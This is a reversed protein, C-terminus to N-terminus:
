IVVWRSKWFWQTPYRRGGVNNILLAWGLMILSQQLVMPVYYWGMKSVQPITVALLATAGGPPHTVEFLQMVGLALGLSVAAAAWNAGYIDGVQFGPHLDFLKAVCVGLIASLGNGFIVNMPQTLPVTPAAYSFVFPDAHNCPLLCQQLVCLLVAEAGFAAVIIPSNHVRLYHARASLCCFAIGGFCGLLTLWMEWAKHKVKQRLSPEAEGDDDQRGKEAHGHDTPPGEVVTGDESRARMEPGTTGEKREQQSKRTQRHRDRLPAPLIHDVGSAPHRAAAPEAPPPRYGLFRTAPWGKDLWSDKHSNQPDANSSPAM